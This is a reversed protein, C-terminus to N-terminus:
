KGIEEFHQFNGPGYHTLHSEPCSAFAKTKKRKDLLFEYKKRSSFTRLIKFARILTIRLSIVSMLSLTNKLSKHMQHLGPGKPVTATPCFIGRFDTIMRMKM